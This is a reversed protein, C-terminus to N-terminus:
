LFSFVITSVATASIVIAFGSNGMEEATDVVDVHGVVAAGILVGDDGERRRAVHVLRVRDSDGAGAIAGLGGENGSGGNLGLVPGTRAVCDGGRAVVPGRGGSVGERRVLLVVRTRHNDQVRVRVGAAVAAVATAMLAVAATGSQVDTTVTVKGGASPSVSVLTQTSSGVLVSVTM